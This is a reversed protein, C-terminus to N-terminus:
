QEKYPTSTDETGKPKSSRKRFSVEWQIDGEDERKQVMKSLKWDAVALRGISHDVFSRRNTVYDHLYPSHPVAPVCGWRGDVVM